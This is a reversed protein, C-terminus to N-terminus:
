SVRVRATSTEPETEILPLLATEQATQYSGTLSTKKGEWEQSAAVKEYLREPWVTVIPFPM